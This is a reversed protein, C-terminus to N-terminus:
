SGFEFEALNMNSKDQETSVWKFTSLILQRPGHLGGGVLTKFDSSNYSPLPTRIKGVANTSVQPKKNTDDVYVLRTALLRARNV